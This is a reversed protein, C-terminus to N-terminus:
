RSKSDKTEYDSGAAHQAGSVDTRDARTAALITAEEEFGTTIQM